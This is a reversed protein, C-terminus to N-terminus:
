GTAPGAPSRPIRVSFTSGRGPRSQVAISGGHAEAIWKSIALGLGTGPHDGTRTRALDARWFREFIHPIDGPAIGIGTDRVALTIDAGEDVLSVTVEGGSPTYKIANTLLNMVLQRIRLEDYSLVVPAEPLELTVKVGAESGLLEATEGLDAVLRGLDGRVVTLGARGEDVRALILLNTVLETMANIQRLTEDLSAVIEGPTEPHTLAREVGARLVMLPTKLEHSADATFRRLAVFSQEVRGLMENLKQGLRAVEDNGTPVALRRHLSRGDEIAELEAIMTEVPQMSRGALWYGLLTSSVLILPAVLVMSLLLERPGYLQPDPRAAVLVATVSKDAVDVTDLRFQFEARDPGLRLSGSRPERPQRLLERRVKVLDDPDLSDSAFPSVYLLQGAADSVFLFDRMGEFTGRVEPVLEATSDPFGIAPVKNVVRGGFKVATLIADKALVSENVLRTGLQERAERVASERRDWYLALSFVAVTATLAIAYSITLRQRISQM